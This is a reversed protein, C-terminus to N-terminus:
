EARLEVEYRIAEALRMSVEEADNAGRCLPRRFARLVPGGIGFCELDPIRERLAQVLRGAHMDGSVEGAIVLLKLKRTM